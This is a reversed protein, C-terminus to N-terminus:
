AGSMIEDVKYCFLFLKKVRNFTDCSATEIDITDLMSDLVHNHIDCEQSTLNLENKKRLGIMKVTKCFDHFTYLEANYNHFKMTENYRAKMVDLLHNYCSVDGDPVTMIVHGSETIIYDPTLSGSTIDSECESDSSIIIISDNFAM